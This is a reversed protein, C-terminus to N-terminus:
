RKRMNSAILSDLERKVDGSNLANIQVPGIYINSGGTSSTAPTIGVMGMRSIEVAARNIEAIIMDTYTKVTMYAMNMSNSFVGVLTSQLGGSMSMVGDEFTKITNRGWFSLKSFPGAQADSHAAMVYSINQEGAKIGEAYGVTTMVGWGFGAERYKPSIMTNLGNAVEEASIKIDFLGDKVHGISESYTDLSSTDFAGIPSPPMKAAWDPLEAHLQDKFLKDFAEPSEAMKWVFWITVLGLGIIGAVGALGVLSLGTAAALWQGFGAALGGVFQGTMNIVAAFPATLFSGVPTIFTALLANSISGFLHVGAKFVFGAAMGGAWLALLLGSFTLIDVTLLVLGTLTKAPDKFLDTFFTSLSEVIVKGIGGFAIGVLDVIAGIGMEGWKGMAEATKGEQALQRIEPLQARMKAQIPQLQARLWRALPMLILMLPRFLIGLIEAIPRIVMFISKLIGEISKYFSKSASMLTFIGGGIFAFRGIAAGLSQVSTIAGSKMGTTTTAAKALGPASGSQKILIEVTKDAM